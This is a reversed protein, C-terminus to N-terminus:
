GMKALLSVSFSSGVKDPNNVNALAVRGINLGHLPSTVSLQVLLLYSEQKQGHRQHHMSTTCNSSSARGMVTMINDCRIWVAKGQLLPLFSKLTYHVVTIELVNIHRQKSPPWWGASTRTPSSLTAGLSAGWGTLSADTNLLINCLRLHCEM